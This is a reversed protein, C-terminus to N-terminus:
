QLYKCLTSIEWENQRRMCLLDRVDGHQGRADAQISLVLPANNGPHALQPELRVIARAAANAALDFGSRLEDTSALYFQKTKGLQSSDAVVVEQFASLRDYFSKLCAYEFAKGNKAGSAAKGQKM